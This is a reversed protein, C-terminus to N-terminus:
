ALADSSLGGAVRVAAVLFGDNRRRTGAVTVADTFQM